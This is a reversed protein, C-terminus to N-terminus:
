TLKSPDLRWVEVFRKGWKSNKLTGYWCHRDLYCHVFLNGGLFIGAHSIFKGFTFLLVDGPKKDEKSVQYAYKRIYELLYNHKPNNLNWDPSYAPMAFHQLYGLSKLIGVLLGSCDCGAKSIGRHRYPVKLDAWVKAEAAIDQQIKGIM